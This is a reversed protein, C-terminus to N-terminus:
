NVNQNSDRIQKVEHYNVQRVKALHDFNITGRNADLPASQQLLQKDSIGLKADLSDLTQNAIALQKNAIAAELIEKRKNIADVATFGSKKMEALLEEALMRQLRENNLVLKVRRILQEPSPVTLICKQMDSDYSTVYLINYDINGSLLM